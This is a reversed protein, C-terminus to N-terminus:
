LGKLASSRRGWVSVREKKEVHVVCVGVSEIKDWNSPSCTASDSCRLSADVSRETWTCRQSAGMEEM